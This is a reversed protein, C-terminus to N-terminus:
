ESLLSTNKYVSFIIKMLDNPANAKKGLLNVILSPVPGTWQEARIDPNV